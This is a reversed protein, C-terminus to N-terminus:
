HQMWLFKSKKAGWVRLMDWHKRVNLQESMGWFDIQKGPKHKNNQEKLLWASVASSPSDCEEQKRLTYEFESSLAKQKWPSQVTM